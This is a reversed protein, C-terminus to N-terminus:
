MEVNVNVTKFVLIPDYQYILQQLLGFFYEERSLLFYKSKPIEQCNQLRLAKCAFSHAVISCPSEELHELWYTDFPIRILLSHIRFQNSFSGFTWGNLNSCVTYLNFLPQFCERGNFTFILNTIHVILGYHKRLQSNGSTNHQSALKTSPFWSTAQWSLFRCLFVYECTM